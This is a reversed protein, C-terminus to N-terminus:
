GLAKLLSEEMQKLPAQKGFWLEFQKEAQFLLMKYGAVIVCDAANAERVLRTELPTYVVDFVTMGSHFYELPVLTEDVNPSMGVSTTNILIDAPYKMLNDLSEYGCHFHDAMERAKEITRNLIIVAGGAKRAAYVLAAAAGGAGLIVVTKGKFSTLAEVAKTAGIWDTNFGKLTGDDNVVTNVAGIEAAVPDIEDLYQMVDDKLPITVSLGRFKEERVREIFSKLKEPPIDYREMEADIGLELFARRFLVPSLSHAIPHGIVGFSQSM